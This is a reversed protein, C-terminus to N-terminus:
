WGDDSVVFEELDPLQPDPHTFPPAGASGRGWWVKTRALSFRKIRGEYMTLLNQIMLQRQSVTCRLEGVNPDFLHLMGEDISHAPHPNSLAVGGISRRLHLGVMHGYATATLPSLLSREEFGLRLSYFCHEDVQNLARDAEIATWIAVAAVNASAVPGNHEVLSVEREPHEQPPLVTFGFKADRGYRAASDQLEQLRPRKKAWDANGLTGNKRYGWTYKGAQIRRFWDMVFANCVGPNVISVVDGIQRVDCLLHGRHSNAFTDKRTPLVASFIRLM